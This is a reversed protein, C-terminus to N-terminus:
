SVCCCYRSQVHDIDEYPHFTVFANIFPKNVDSSLRLFKSQFTNKKLQFACRPSLVEKSDLAEEVTKLFRDEDVLFQREGFRLLQRPIGSLSEFAANALVITSGNSNNELVVVADSVVELAFTSLHNHHTAKPKM